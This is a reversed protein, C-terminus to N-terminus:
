DRSARLKTRGGLKVLAAQAEPRQLTAFDAEVLAEMAKAYAEGEAAFAADSLKRQQFFEFCMEGAVHHKFRHFLLTVMLLEPASLGALARPDAQIEWAATQLRVTNKRNERIGM